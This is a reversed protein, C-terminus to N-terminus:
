NEAWLKSNIDPSANLAAQKLYKLCQTSPVLSAKAQTLITRVINLSSLDLLSIIRSPGFV